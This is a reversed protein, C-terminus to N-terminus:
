QSQNWMNSVSNESPKIIPNLSISKKADDLLKCIQKIPLGNDKLWEAQNTFPNIGQSHIKRWRSVYNRIYDVSKYDVTKSEDYFYNWFDGKELWMFCRCKRYAEELDEFTYIAKNKEKDFFKIWFQVELRNVTKFEFYDQYLGVKWKAITDLLKDYMRILIRQNDSTRKWITWWTLIDNEKTLKISKFHVKNWDKAKDAIRIAQAINEYNEQESRPLKYISQHTDKRFDVILDHKCVEKKIDYMWDIHWDIRTIRAQKLLNLDGQTTIDLLLADISKVYWMQILRFVSSYFMIITKGEIFSKGNTYIEFKLIPISSPLSEDFPSYILKYLTDWKHSDRTITYKWLLWNFHGYNSNDIDLMSRKNILELEWKMSLKLYDSWTIWQECNKIRHQIAKKKIDM